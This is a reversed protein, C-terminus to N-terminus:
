STHMGTASDALNLPFHRSPVCFSRDHTTRHVTLSLGSNPCLPRESPAVLDFKLVASM